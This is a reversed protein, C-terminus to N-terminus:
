GWSSGTPSHKVYHCLRCEGDYVQVVMHCRYQSETVGRYSKM